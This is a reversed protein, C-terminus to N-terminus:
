KLFLPLTYRRVFLTFYFLFGFFAWRAWERAKRRAGKEVYYRHAILVPVGFFVTSIFFALIRLPWKLPEGEVRKQEEAASNLTTMAPATLNRSAFEQKAAELADATYNEPHGHLVAYLEEDSKDAMVRKMDRVSISM